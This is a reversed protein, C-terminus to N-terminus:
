RKPKRGGAALRKPQPEDTLFRVGGLEGREAAREFTGALDSRTPKPLKHARHVTGARAAAGKVKDLTDADTGVYEVTKGDPQLGARVYGVGPRRERLWAGMAVDEEAPSLAELADDVRRLLKDADDM